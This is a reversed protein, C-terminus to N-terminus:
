VCQACYCVTGQKYTDGYCSRKLISKLIENPKSRVSGCFYPIYNDLSDECEADEAGNDGETWETNSFDEFMDVVDTQEILEQLALAQSVSQAVEM